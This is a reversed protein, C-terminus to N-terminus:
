CVMLLKGDKMFVTHREGNDCEFVSVRFYHGNETTRVEDVIFAYRVLDNYLEREKEIVMEERREKFQPRTEGGKETQKIRIEKSTTSHKLKAM